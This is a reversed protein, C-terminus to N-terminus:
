GIQLILKHSNGTENKMLGTKNGMVGPRIYNSNLRDTQNLAKYFNSELCHSLEIAKILLKRVSDPSFIPIM